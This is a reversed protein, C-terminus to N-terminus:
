PRLGPRGHRRRLYWVPAALTLLAALPPAPAQVAINSGVRVDSFCRNEGLLITNSTGDTISVQVGTFCADFTDDGLDFPEEGFVITNSTGDNIDDILPDPRRTGRFCERPSTEDFTITNSTGDTIAGFRSTWQLRVGTNEGLLLTNSTGDSFGGSVTRPVCLTYGTTEGFVITNSTGDTIQFTWSRPTVSVLIPAATAVSPVAASVALVLSLLRLRM